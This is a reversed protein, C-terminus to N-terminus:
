LGMSLGEPCVRSTRAMRHLAVGESWKGLDTRKGHDMWLHINGPRQLTQTSHSMTSLCERSQVFVHDGESLSGSMHVESSLHISRLTEGAAQTRGNASDSGGDKHPWLTKAAAHTTRAHKNTRKRQRQRQVPAPVVFGVIFRKHVFIAM